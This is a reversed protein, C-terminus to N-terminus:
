ADDPVFRSVKVTLTTEGIRVEAAEDLQVLIAPSHSEGNTTISTALQVRDGDQAEAIFSLAYTDTVSVKAMKGSKAVVTPSGVIREGHLIKCRILFADDDAVVQGSFLLVVILAITRNM